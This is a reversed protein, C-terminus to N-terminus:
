QDSRALISLGLGRELSEQQTLTIPRGPSPGTSVATKVYVGNARGYWESLADAFASLSGKPCPDTELCPGDSEMVTSVVSVEQRLASGLLRAFRYGHAPIDASVAVCLPTGTAAKKAPIAEGLAQLRDLRSAAAIQPAAEPVPEPVPQNTVTEPVLPEVIIDDLSYCSLAHRARDPRASLDPIHAVGSFRFGETEFPDIQIGMVPQGHRHAHAEKVTGQTLANRLGRWVPSMNVGGLDPHKLQFREKVPQSLHIQGPGYKQLWELESFRKGIVGLGFHGPVFTAEGEPSVKVAEAPVAQVANNIRAELDVLKPLLMRTHTQLRKLADRYGPADHDSLSSSVAKMSSELGKLEGRLARNALDLQDSQRRYEPDLMAKWWNRVRRVIGATKVLENEDVEGLANSLLEVCERARTVLLQM